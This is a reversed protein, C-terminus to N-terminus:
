CLLHVEHSVMVERPNFLPYQLMQSPPRYDLLYLHLSKAYYDLNKFILNVKIYKTYNEEKELKEMKEVNEIVNTFLFSKEQWAVYTVLATEFHRIYNRVEAPLSVKMMKSVLTVMNSLNFSGLNNLNKMYKVIVEELVLNKEVLLLNVYVYFSFILFNSHFSEDNLLSNFGDAMQFRSKESLFLEEVLKLYLFKHDNYKFELKEGNEKKLYVSIFQKDFDDYLYRYFFAKNEFNFKAFKKFLYSIDLYAYESSSEFFKDISQKDNNLPSTKLNLHNLPSPSNFNLNLPSSSLNLNFKNSNATSQLSFHSNNFSNQVRNRIPTNKIKKDIFFNEFIKIDDIEDPMLIEFYKQLLLSYNKTSFLHLTNGEKPYFDFFKSIEFENKTPIDSNSFNAIIDKVFNEYDGLYIDSTSYSSIIEKIENRFIELIAALLLVCQLVDNKRKLIVKKLYCFTLWIFNLYNENNGVELSKLADFYNDYVKRLVEIFSNM